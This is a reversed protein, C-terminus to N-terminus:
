REETKLWEKIEVQRSLKENKNQKKIRRTTNGAKNAQRMGRFVMTALLGHILQGIENKDETITSVCQYCGVM